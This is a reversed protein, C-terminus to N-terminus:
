RRYRFHVNIVDKRIVPVIVDEVNRHKQVPSVLSLM